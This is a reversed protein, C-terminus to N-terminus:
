KNHNPIAATLLIDSFDLMIQELYTLIYSVNETLEFGYNDLTM